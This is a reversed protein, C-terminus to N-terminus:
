IQFFITQAVIQALNLTLHGKKVFLCRTVRIDLQGCLIKLVVVLWWPSWILKKTFIAWFTGWDKKKDFNVTVKKVHYFAAL